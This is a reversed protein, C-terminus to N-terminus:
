GTSILFRLSEPTKILIMLIMALVNMGIAIEILVDLDRSIYLLILPTVVVVLGDIFM